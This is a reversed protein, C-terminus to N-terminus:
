SLSRQSGADYYKIMSTASGTWEFHAGVYYTTVDNLV